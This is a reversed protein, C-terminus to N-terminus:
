GLMNNLFHDIQEKIDFDSGMWYHLALGDLFALINIVTVRPSKASEPAFIGAKVGSEIVDIVVRRFFQMYELFVNGERLLTKNSFSLQVIAVMIKLSRPDQVFGETAAYCYDRFQEPSDKISDLNGDSFQMLEVTWSKLAFLILEDRSEFYVYLSGKSLGVKQAIRSVPVNFGEDALLNLAIKAIEERKKAKDVVKPM